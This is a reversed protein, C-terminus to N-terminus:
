GDPDPLTGAVLALSKQALNATARATSTPSIGRRAAATLLSATRRRCCTSATAGILQANSCLVHLRSHVDCGYRQRPNSIAFSRGPCITDIEAGTACRLSTLQRALQTVPDRKDVVPLYVGRESKTRANEMLCKVSGLRMREEEVM